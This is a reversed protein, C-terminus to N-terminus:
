WTYVETGSYYSTKLSVPGKSVWIQIKNKNNTFGFRHRSGAIGTLHAGCSNKQKNEMSAQIPEILAAIYYFVRTM